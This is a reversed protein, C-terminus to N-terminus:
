ALKFIMSKNINKAKEILEVRNKENLHNKLQIEQNIEKWLIFSQAKKTRLPFREFYSYTKLCNNSGSIVYSFVNPKSHTEISGTGFM